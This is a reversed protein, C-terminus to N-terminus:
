YNYFKRIGLYHLQHYNNSGGTRAAAIVFTGSLDRQVSDTFQVCVGTGSNSGIINCFITSTNTAHNYDIVFKIKKMFQTGLALSNMGNSQLLTGNYYLKVVSSYEDFYVTYSNNPTLENNSIITSNAFLSYWIGDAGNGGGASHDAELVIRKHIAIQPVNKYWIGLQNGVNQTLSVSNKLGGVTSTNWFASGSITGGGNVGNEIWRIYETNDTYVTYWTTGNYQELLLTTSNFIIDGNVWTLTDRETSTYSAVINQAKSYIQRQAATNTGAIVATGLTNGFVMPAGVVATVGTSSVNGGVGSGSGGGSGNGGFVETFQESM